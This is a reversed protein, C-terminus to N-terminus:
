KFTVLVENILITELDFFRNFFFKKIWSDAYCDFPITFNWETVDLNRRFDRM